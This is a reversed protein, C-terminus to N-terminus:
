QQLIIFVDNDYGGFCHFRVESKKNVYVMFSNETDAHFPCLGNYRNIKVKMFRIGFTEAYRIITDITTIDQRTKM